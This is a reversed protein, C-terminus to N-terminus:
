AINYFAKKGPYIAYKEKEEIRILQNYKAIRESRSLSGTKIQGTGLGVAFDAITTDETEGSRHSIVTTWNNIMSMSVAQVTESVTGIQNLKILAANASKQEIGQQIRKPNTVFLDDGVIQIKNGCLTVLKQFGNWDDEDFPDEISIIPYKAVLETYYQVLDDTTVQEQTNQRTMTYLKTEKDFFSSAAVDLGIYIDKGPVYGAQEIALTLIKLGEENNTLKPAFGGEDGVATTSGQKHLINKLTHFIESGYRIAESFTPAGAPIIMFEQFDLGSDAHKGGNIVNMMPVPLVCLEQALSAPRQDEPISNILNQDTAFQTVLPSAQPLLTEFYRYLPINMYFAKAKAFALSFGLIANAGLKGKNDTGDLALLRKDVDQQSLVDMDQFQFENRIVTNVHEVAQLVGKGLYRKPDKDRLEIAEYIGTSAGSPIAVRSIVRDTELEVEVTPMGRSDLIERAFIKKIMNM